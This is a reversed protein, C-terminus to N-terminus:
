MYWIHTQNDYYNYPNFETRFILFPTNMNNTAWGFLFILVGSSLKPNNEYRYFQCNLFNMDHKSIVDIDHQEEHGM